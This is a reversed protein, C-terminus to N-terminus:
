VWSNSSTSGKHIVYCTSPKSYVYTKFNTATVKHILNDTHQYFDKGERMNRTNIECDILYQEAFKKNFAISSSVGMDCHATFSDNLKFDWVSQWPEYKFKVWDCRNRIILDCQEREMVEITEEIHNQYYIDDDDCYFYYDCNNNVLYQLPFSYREDVSVDHPTHLWKYNIGAIDKVFHEYSKKNESGNQHFCILDPKRSQNQLQLAVCRVMYPRSATPVFVGIKM